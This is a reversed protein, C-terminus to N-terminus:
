DTTTWNGQACRQSTIQELDSKVYVAPLIIMQSGRLKWLHSTITKQSNIPGTPRTEYQLFEM